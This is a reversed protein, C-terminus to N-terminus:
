CLFKLSQMKLCFFYLKEVKLGWLETPLAGPRPGPNTTPEFGAPSAM